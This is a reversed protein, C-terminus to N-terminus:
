PRQSQRSCACPANKHTHAAQCPRTQLSPLNRRGRTARAIFPLGPGCACERNMGARMTQQAEKKGCTAWIRVMARSRDMAFPVVLFSHFFVWAYTTPDHRPLRPFRALPAPASAAERMLWGAGRGVSVRKEMCVYVCVTLLLDGGAPAVVLSGRDEGHPTTLPPCKRTLPPLPSRTHAVFVQSFPPGSVFGALCCVVVGPATNEREDTM